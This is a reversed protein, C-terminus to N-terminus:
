CWWVGGLVGVVLCELIVVGVELMLSGFGFLRCGPVRFRMLHRGITSAAMALAAATVGVPANCVGCGVGVTV